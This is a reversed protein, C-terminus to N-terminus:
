GASATCDGQCLGQFKMELRAGIFNKFDEYTTRLVYKMEEIISLMSQMVEEPVGFVQFTLLTLTPVITNYCNTADVSVYRCLTPDTM